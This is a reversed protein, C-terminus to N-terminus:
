EIRKGEWWITALLNNHIDRRELEDTKFASADENYETSLVVPEGGELEGTEVVIWEITFSVHRDDSATGTWRFAYEKFLSSDADQFDYYCSVRNGAHTMPVAPAIVSSAASFPPSHVYSIEWIGGLPGPSTDVPNDESCSILLATSILLSLLVTTRLNM